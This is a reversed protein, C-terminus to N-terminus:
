KFVSGVGGLSLGLNDRVDVCDLGDYVYDTGGETGSTGVFHEGEVSLGCYGVVSSGDETKQVYDM